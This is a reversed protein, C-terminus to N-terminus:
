RREPNPSGSGRAPPLVPTPSSSGGGKGGKGKDKTPQPSPPPTTPEPAHTTPPESTPASTPMTPVPSSSTVAPTPTASPTATPTPTPSPAVPAPVLLGAEARVKLAYSRLAAFEPETLSGAKLQASLATLLDDAAARLQESGGPKAADVVAKVKDRRVDAPSTSSSCGALLVGGLAVAVVGRM